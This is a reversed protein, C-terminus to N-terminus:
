SQIEPRSRARDQLVVKFGDPDPHPVRELTDNAYQWTGELTEPDTSGVYPVLLKKAGEKDRLLLALGEAYAQLFKKFTDRGTALFAKRV